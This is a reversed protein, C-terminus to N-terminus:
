APPNKPAEGKRAERASKRAEFEKAKKAKDAAVASKLSLAFTALTLLTGAFIVLRGTGVRMLHEQVLPTKFLDDILSEGVKEYAFLPFLGFKISWFFPFLQLLIVGISIRRAVLGVWMKWMGWLGVLLWLPGLPHSLGSAGSAGGWSLVSGLAVLTSGAFFRYVQKDGSGEYLVVRTGCSPCVRASSRIQEHCVLCYKFPSPAEPAAPKPATTPSPPEGLVELAPKENGPSSLDPTM